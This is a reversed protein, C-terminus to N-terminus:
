ALGIPIITDNPDHKDDSVRQYRIREFENLYEKMGHVDYQVQANKLDISGENNPLPFETEVVVHAPQFIMALLLGAIFHM